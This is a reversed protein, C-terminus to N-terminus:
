CFLQTEMPGFKGVYKIANDARGAFAADQAVPDLVEDRHAHSRITGSSGCYFSDDLRGLTVVGWRGDLGVYASRGFLRGGQTSKGTDPNM